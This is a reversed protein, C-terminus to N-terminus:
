KQKYKLPKFLGRVGHGVGYTSYLCLHNRVNHLKNSLIVKSNKWVKLRSNEVALNYSPLTLNHLLGRLMRTLTGVKLVPQWQNSCRESHASCFWNCPSFHTLRAKYSIDYVIMDSFYWSSSEKPKSWYPRNVVWLEKVVVWIERAVWYWQEALWGPTCKVYLLTFRQKVVATHHM